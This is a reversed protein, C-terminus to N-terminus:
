KRLGWILEVGLQRLIQDQIPSLTEKMQDMALTSNSSWYRAHRVTHRAQADSYHDPADGKTLMSEWFHRGADPKLELWGALDRYLTAAGRTILEHEPDDPMHFFADVEAENLLESIRKHTPTDALDLAALRAQLCKVHQLYAKVQQRVITSLVVPSAGLSNPTIKDHLGTMGTDAITTIAQILLAETDRGMASLSLVFIVYDTFANHFKRLHRWRYNKPPLSDRVANALQSAINKLAELEPNVSSGIAPGDAEQVQIKGWDLLTALKLTAGNFQEPGTANYFLRSHPIRQLCGLTLCASVGSIGLMNSIVTRSNYLRAISSKVRRDDTSCIDFESPIDICDCLAELSELNPRKLNLFQLSKALLEPLYRRFIRTAPVYKEDGRNAAAGRVVPNLNVHYCGNPIDLWIVWNNGVPVSLPSQKALPWTLGSFFGVCVATSVANFEFLGRRLEGAADKFANPTLARDDSLGRREAYTAYKTDAIYHNRAAEQFEAVSSFTTCGSLAQISKLNSQHRSEWVREKKVSESAPSRTQLRVQDAFKKDISKGSLQSLAFAAALAKLSSADDEAIEVIAGFAPFKKLWRSTPIEHARPTDSKLAVAANILISISSIAYALAQDLKLENNLSNLGILLRTLVLKLYPADAPPEFATIFDAAGVRVRSDPHTVLEDLLRSHQLINISSKEIEM